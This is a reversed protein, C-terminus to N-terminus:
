RSLARSVIEYVDKSLAKSSAIRDLQAQMLDQRAEDYRRWDNFVSVMRSALQPNAPDLALVFDALFAYGEGTPAHFRVQNGACFAGILSRVRNPNALNFDPHDALRRVHALTDPRASGAQISFWKDLVLPDTRWRDYFAEIAQDRRPHDQDALVVFAAQADTMNDAGEFQSWAAEIAEEDESWVLYRLSVNRLRRRDIEAQEHRYPGTPALAHFRAWLQKAHVCALARGLGERAAHIADPDITSLEQAVVREAPLGLALARLSGDLSADELVRGWASVFRPDVEMARGERSAEALEVLLETALKEGADWRNFADDDHGMLFALAERSRSMELKVPASFGRLISPTPEEDIGVFVFRQEADRLELVRSDEPRTGAARELEGELHLPLAQGDRGLLGVRVPMHLPKRDAAGVIEFATEPYDQRLTLAYRGGERDYEGSARLRPTGAQLYWREFQDLNRGNADAMAARFDDCTVAQGDHRDFYVDMGKRFGAEGLLTAYMRIVEAGKEYVTATYFNDMSIYSEPRIPHAMPGEDEPFQRSRLSKVSAIRQVPQSSMDESFRQDRYVTLGEKLTLQFWDRCTVRNGTWNHFYEHAIVSEIGEYDDDTATEPLALVYKSNFVNLGKNEMAGMNFDNVAVIMYVDLDYERGFREEDWRMAKQLSRLAHECRDINQPEVWIELRIRRGSMTTFEGAHCLLNGAVLAFLYSPKPFPDEWRVRHRGGELDEAEVRNGNSLLVPYRERDAEISVSYRSMVDPRDLFYTIRRFGMAECQTCFNGSSKYLGSLKSNTEPHIRVRTELEFREPPRDITLRDEEVRYESEALRRPQGLDDSGEADRERVAIALLELEEGDLVLPLVGAPADSRRRVSLRSTVITEQEGLDFHLDVEDILYDTPRYDSRLVTKPKSDSM